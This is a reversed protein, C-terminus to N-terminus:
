TKPVGVIDSPIDMPVSPMFYESTERTLHDPCIADLRRDLPLPHVPDEDDATAISFIGPPIIPM